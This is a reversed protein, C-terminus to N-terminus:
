SRCLLGKWKRFGMLGMLLIGTGFLVITSAEPTNAVLDFSTLGSAGGYNYGDIFSSLNISINYADNSQTAFDLFLPGTFSASNTYQNLIFGSSNVLASGAENANGMVNLSAIQTNKASVNTVTLTLSSGFSEDSDGISYSSHISNAFYDVYLTGLNGTGKFDASLKSFLYVGGPAAPLRTVAQQISISPAISINPHAKSFVTPPNAM